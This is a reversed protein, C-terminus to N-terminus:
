FNSSRANTSVRESEHLHLERKSLPFTRKHDGTLLRKSIQKKSTFAYMYRLYMCYRHFDLRQKFTFLLSVVYVFFLLILIARAITSSSYNKRKSKRDKTCWILLSFHADMQWYVVVFHRTSSLVNHVMYVKNSPKAYLVLPCKAWQEYRLECFIRM